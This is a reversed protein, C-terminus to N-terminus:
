TYEVSLNFKVEKTCETKLAHFRRQIAQAILCPKLTIVKEEYIFTVTCTSSTLSLLGTNMLRGRAILMDSSVTM